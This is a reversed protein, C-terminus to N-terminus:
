SLTGTEKLLNNISDSVKEVPINIVTNDSYVIRCHKLMGFNGSFPNYNKMGYFYEGLLVIGPIGLSNAMHAPGSDIGVFLKAGKIIAASELISLTGCLNHYHESKVESESASGVEVVSFKYENILIQALKDWKNSDWDKIEENSKCHFVVYNRKPLYQKTSSFVKQPFYMRPFTDSVDIKNHLSVSKLLGGFNFYNTGNITDDVNVKQLVWQCKKCTRGNFHLDYVAEFHFRKNILIWTTLCFVNFVKDVSPNYKILEKYPSRVFWIITSNPHKKRIERSIPENAIIDGIHEILSIAVIEPGKRFFSIYLLRYYNVLFSVKSKLEHDIFNFKDSLFLYELYKIM